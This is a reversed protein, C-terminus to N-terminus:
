YEDALMVTLVRFCGAAPDEAGYECDADAFYDVKWFIKVGDVVTSGFDHEGYPDDDENFADHDRVAMVARFVFSDGRAAVGATLVLRGPIATTFGLARRFADNAAALPAAAPSPAAEAATSSLM